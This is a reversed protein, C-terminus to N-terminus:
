GGNRRVAEDLDRIDFYLHGDLRRAPLRGRAVRQRIAAESVDLLQAARRTSLWRWELQVRRVEERVLRRVLPALADALAAELPESV